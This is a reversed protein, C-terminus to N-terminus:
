EKIVKIMKRENDGEIRLLYIGSREKSIDLLNTGKELHGEQLKKGLQDLIQYNM